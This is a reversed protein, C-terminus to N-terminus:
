RCGHEDCWKDYIHILLEIEECPMDVFRWDYDLLGDGHEGTPSIEVSGSMPSFHKDDEAEFEVMIEASIADPYKGDLLEVPAVFYMTLVEREQSWFSEEFEINDIYERIM